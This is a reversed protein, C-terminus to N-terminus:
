DVRKGVKVPLEIELGYRILTLTVEENYSAYEGLYSTLDAIDQVTTDDIAVIIDDAMVGALAAPDAPIATIVWVGNVTELNRAIAMQPTLNTIEVGLWPYDFSGQEILSTAVRSVKNSSIAYYVGDGAAPDIRAIVMGIVEGAPNLLPGGSNGFNVAADFQIINAVGMTEAEDTIEAIRDTQSVVGSTVTAPLGFPSGIVIVPEGAKVASSDALTLAPIPLSQDLVAVDSHECSGIITAMATRGDASIIYILNHGKIVHNNTLIHGEADFAFGSGLMNEGDSIRVISQSVEEYLQGANILAQEMESTIGSLEDDLADIKALTEEGTALMENHLASIEAAQQEQSAALQQSLYFTYAGSAGALVLALTLLGIIVKNFMQMEERAM